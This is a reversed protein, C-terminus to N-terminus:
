GDIGDCDQDIGDPPAGGVNTAYTSDYVVHAAGTGDLGFRFADGNPPAGARVEERVWGSETRHAYRLDVDLSWGLVGYVVHPRGDRDLALGIGFGGSDPDIPEVVWSGSADTAYIAGDPGIAGVHRKGASDVALAVQGDLVRDTVVDISWGAAGRAACRLEIGGPTEAVYAVHLVGDPALVMATHDDATGEPDIPEITWGGAASSAVSLVIPGDETRDVGLVEIVGTPEVVFPGFSYSGMPRPFEEIRWSGFAERVAHVAIGDRADYQFMAHPIGAADLTIRSQSLYEAPIVVDRSWAGGELRFYVMDQLDPWGPGLGVGIAHVVGDSGVVADDPSVDGGSYPDVITEFTWRGANDPAEPHIDPNSDDCDAGGCAYSAWGDGDLDPVDCPGPPADPYVPADPTGDPDAADEVSAYEAGGEVGRGDGLLPTWGYCGAVAAFLIGWLASRRM